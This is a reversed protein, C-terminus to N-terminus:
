PVADSAVELSLFLLLRRKNPDIMPSAFAIAPEVFFCLLVAVSVAARLIARYWPLRRRDRTWVM